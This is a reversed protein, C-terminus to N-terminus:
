LGVLGRTDDRKLADLLEPRLFYQTKGVHFRMIQPLNYPTDTRTWDSDSNAKVVWQSAPLSSQRHTQRHFYPIIPEEGWFPAHKARREIINDRFGGLLSVDMIMENVYPKIGDQGMAGWQIFYEGGYNSCPTADWVRTTNMGDKNAEPYEGDKDSFYFQGNNRNGVRHVLHPFWKVYQFNNAYQIRWFSLDFNGEDFQQSMLKLLDHHWIEDAQYYLVNDYACRAILDNALTAFAMANISPFEGTILEVKPNAEAIEQLYALTGDTSGLDMVIFEDVFPLLSAMSEFICFAGTFTDKIFVCASLPYTM